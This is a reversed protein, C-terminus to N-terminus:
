NSYKLMVSAEIYDQLSNDLQQGFGSELLSLVREFAASSPQALLVKKM